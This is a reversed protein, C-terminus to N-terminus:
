VIFKYEGKIQYCKARELYADANERNFHIATSLDKIAEKLRM